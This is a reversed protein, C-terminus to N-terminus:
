PVIRPPSSATLGLQVRLQVLGVRPDLYGSVTAWHRITDVVIEGADREVLAGHLQLAAGLSESLPRTQEGLPDLQVRQELTNERANRNGDPRAAQVHLEVGTV